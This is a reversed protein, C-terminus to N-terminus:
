KGFGQLTKATMVAGGIVPDFARKLEVEEIEELLIEMTGLVINEQPMIHGVMVKGTGDCFAAHLHCMGEGEENRCIMGQGAVIEILGELQITEGYRFGYHKTADPIAYAYATKSMSGMFTTIAANKLGTKEFVEMLCDMMNEGPRMAIAVKRGGKGVAYDM